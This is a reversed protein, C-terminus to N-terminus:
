AGKRHLQRRTKNSQIHPVCTSQRCEHFSFVAKLDSLVQKTQASTKRSRIPPRCRNVTKPDSYFHVSRFHFLTIHQYLSSSPGASSTRIALRSQCRKPLPTGIGVSPGGKNSTGGRASLGRGQRSGYLWKVEGLGTGHSIYITGNRVFIPLPIRLVGETSFQPCLHIIMAHLRFYM